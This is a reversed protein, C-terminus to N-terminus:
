APPNDGRGALPKWIEHGLASFVADKYGVSRQLPMDRGYYGPMPSRTLHMLMHRVDERTTEPQVGPRAAEWVFYMAEHLTDDLAVPLGAGNVLKLRWGGWQWVPTVFDPMDTEVYVLNLGPTGRLASQIANHLDNGTIGQFGYGIRGDYLIVSDLGMRAPDTPPDM